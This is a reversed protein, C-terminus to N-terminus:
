SKSARVIMGAANQDCYHRQKSRNVSSLGSLKRHSYKGVERTRVRLEEPLGFHTLGIRLQFESRSLLNM